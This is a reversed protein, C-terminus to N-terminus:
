SGSGGGIADPLRDSGVLVDVLSADSWVLTAPTGAVTIRGRNGRPWVVIEVGRIPSLLEVWEEVAQQDGALSAVLVPLGIGTERLRAALRHLYIGSYPCHPQVLVVLSIGERSPRWVSQSADAESAPVGEIWEPGAMAIATSREM